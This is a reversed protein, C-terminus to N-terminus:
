NCSPREAKRRSPRKSTTSDDSSDLFVFHDYSPGPSGYVCVTGLFTEINNTVYLIGPKLVHPTADESKPM